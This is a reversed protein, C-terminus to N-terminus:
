YVLAYGLVTNGISVAGQNDNTETSQDMYLKTYISPRGRVVHFRHETKQHQQRRMRHSVVVWIKNSMGFLM